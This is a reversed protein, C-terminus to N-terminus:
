RHNSHEQVVCAVVNQVEDVLHHLSFHEKGVVSNCIYLQKCITFDNCCSDLLLAYDFLILGIAINYKCFLFGSNLKPWFTYNHWITSVLGQIRPEIFRPKWEHFFLFLSNQKSIIEKFFVDVLFSHLLDISVLVFVNDYYTPRVWTKRWCPQHQIPRCGEVFVIWNVGLLM